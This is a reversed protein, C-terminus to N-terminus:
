FLERLRKAIEQGNGSITVTKLRSTTGSAVMLTSKPYGLHKALLVELAKNAKGKEPVARVRAKIHSKGDAGTEVGEVVDKHAKPTLRVFLDVGDKAIRFFGAM